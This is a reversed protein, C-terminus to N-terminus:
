IQDESSSSLSWRRLQIIAVIEDLVETSRCLLHFSVEMHCLCLKVLSKGALLRGLSTPSHRGFSAIYSLTIQRIRPMCPFFWACFRSLFSLCFIRLFLWLGLSCLLSLLCRPIAIGTVTLHLHLRFVHHPDLFLLIRPLLIM